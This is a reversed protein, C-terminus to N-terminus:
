KDKRSAVATSPTVRNFMEPRHNRSLAKVQKASPKHDFLEHYNTYAADSARIRGSEDRGAALYRPQEAGQRSGQYASNAAMVTPIAIMGVGLAKLPHRAVMGVGKKLVNATGGLMAGGLSSLKILEDAFGATIYSM